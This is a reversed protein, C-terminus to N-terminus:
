EAVLTVTGTRPDYDFERNRPPDPLQPMYGESVLEELDNPYRGEMTQFQQITQNLGALSTQRSASDRAEINVGVYDAIFGSRGSRQENAAEATPASDPSDAAERDNVVSYGWFILAGLVILILLLKM